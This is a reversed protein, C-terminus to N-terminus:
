SALTQLEILSAGDSSMGSGWAVSKGSPAFHSASRIFSVPAQSFTSAPANNHTLLTLYRHCTRHTNAM